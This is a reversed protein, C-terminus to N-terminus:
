TTDCSVIKDVFDTEQEKYKLVHTVCVCTKGAELNESVHMPVWQACFKGYDLKEHIIQCVTGKNLSLEIIIEYTPIFRTQRILEDM